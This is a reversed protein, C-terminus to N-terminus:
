TRGPSNLGTQLAEEFGRPQHRARRRRGDRARVGSFDVDSFFRACRSSAGREIHTIWALAANNLVIYTLDLGLRAATEFESLCYGWAGDGTLLVMRRDPPTALRAGIAGGGGWGIGALGRPAIFSLPAPAGPVFAAGWGSSALRRLVLVDDERLAEGLSRALLHPPISGAPDPQAAGGEGELSELWHRTTRQWRAGARPREGDRARRRRHRRGCGTRGIEEGDVDAHIM